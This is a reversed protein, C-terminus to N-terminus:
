AHPSCFFKLLIGDEDIDCACAPAPVVEAIYYVRDSAQLTPEHHVLRKAAEIFEQGTLVLVSIM